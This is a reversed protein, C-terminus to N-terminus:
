IYVYIYRELNIEKWLYIDREQERKRIRIYYVVRNM